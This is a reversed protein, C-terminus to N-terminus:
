TVITVKKEHNLARNFIQKTRNLSAIYRSFQRMNSFAPDLQRSNHQSELKQLKQKVSFVTLM